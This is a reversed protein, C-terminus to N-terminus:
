PSHNGPPPLPEAAPPVQPLVAAPPGAAPEPQQPSQDSGPKAASPDIATAPAARAPVVLSALDLSGEAAPSPSVPKGERCRQLGRIVIRDAPSLPRSSDTAAVAIWSGLKQGLTVENASVVDDSGVIWVIKRDQISGVAAEPVFTREVSDGLPLRVRAFMGPRFLPPRPAAPDASYPNDLRGRMTITATKTDVQNNLFDIESRYPYSRDVDDVLGVDAATAQRGIGPGQGSQRAQNMVRLFTPEDVNFYVFIPDISVITALTTANESILNGVQLQSRGIQGTIPATITCFEVTLRAAEHQARAAILSGANEELKAQYSDFEQRSAAGKAVLKEFRDVQVKLFRQEGLLREIVGATEDFKARAPRDDIQYLLDGKSVFQGDEFAVKTLYGTVRSRIDVVREADIRGTVELYDPLRVVRPSTVVVEAAATAAAPPQPRPQSCGGIGLGLLLVVCVCLRSEGASRGLLSSSCTTM